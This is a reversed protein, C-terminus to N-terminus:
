LFFAFAFLVLTSVLLPLVISRNQFCNRRDALTELRIKQWSHAQSYLDNTLIHAAYNHQCTLINIRYGCRFQNGGWRKEEERKNKMKTLKQEMKQSINKLIARLSFLIHNLIYKLTSVVRYFTKSTVKECKRNNKKRWLLWLYGVSVEAKQIFITLM